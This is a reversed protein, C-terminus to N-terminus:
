IFATVRVTIVAEGVWGEDSPSVTPEIGSISWWGRGPDSPNLEAPQGAGTDLDRLAAVTADVLEQLRDVAPEVDTGAVASVIAVQVGYEERKGVGGMTRWEEDSASPLATVVRVLEADRDDTLGLGVSPQTGTVPHPPYTADELMAALSRWADFITTARYTTV